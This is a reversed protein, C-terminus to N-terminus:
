KDRKLRANFNNRVADNIQKAAKNARFGMAAEFYEQVTYGHTYLFDKDLNYSENLVTFIGLAAAKEELEDIPIRRLMKATRDADTENEIAYM